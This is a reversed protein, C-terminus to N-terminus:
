EKSRQQRSILKRHGVRRAPPESRKEHMGQRMKQGIFPPVRLSKFAAAPCNNKREIPQLRFLPVPQFGGDFAIGFFKELATPSVRQHFSSQSAQSRLM